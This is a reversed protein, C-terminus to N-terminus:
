PARSEGIRGAWRYPEVTGARLAAFLFAAGLAATEARLTTPGLGVLPLGLALEDPGWGGEPGIMVFVGTQAPAPPPGGPQAMTWPDGSAALDRLPTIDAVEPLWLRRSQM